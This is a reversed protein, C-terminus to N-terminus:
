FKAARHTIKANNAETQFNKSDGAFFRKKCAVKDLFYVCIKECIIM